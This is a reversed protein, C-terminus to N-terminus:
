KNENKMGSNDIKKKVLLIGSSIAIGVVASIIAAKRLKPYIHEKFADKEMKKFTDILKDLEKNREIPNKAFDMEEDPFLAQWKKLDEGNFNQKLRQLLMYRERCFNYVKTKKCISLVVGTAIGASALGSGAVILPKKYNIPKSDFVKKSNNDNQTKIEPLWSNINQFPSINNM